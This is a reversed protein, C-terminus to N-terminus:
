MHKQEHKFICGGRTVEWVDTSRLVSGHVGERRTETAHLERKMKQERECWRMWKEGQGIKHMPFIKLSIPFPLLILPTLWLSWLGRQRQGAQSRRVWGNHFASVQIETEGRRQLEKKKRSLFEVSVQLTARNERVYLHLRGEIKLKDLSRPRERCPDFHSSVILFSAAHIYLDFFIRESRTWNKSQQLYFSLFGWPPIKYKKLSLLILLSTKLAYQKSSHDQFSYVRCLFLLM